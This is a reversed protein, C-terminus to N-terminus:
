EFGNVVVQIVSQVFRASAPNAPFPCRICGIQIQNAFAVSPFYMGVISKLRHTLAIPLQVQRFIRKRVPLQIFPKHFPGASRSFTQGSVYSSTNLVGHRFNETCLHPIWLVRIIPFMRLRSSHFIWEYIFYMYTHASFFRSNRIEITKCFFYQGPYFTQPVIRQLQHSYLFM